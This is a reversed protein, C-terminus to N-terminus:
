KEVQKLLFLDEEITWPGKKVSPNLYCNWQERCQKATRYKKDDSNNQLYLVRSISKWNNQTEKYENVIKQLIKSEHDSWKNNSLKNKKM